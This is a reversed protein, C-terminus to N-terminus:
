PQKIVALTAGDRQIRHIIKAGPYSTVDLNYRSTSVVYDYHDARDVEYTSYVKIDERAYLEFIHSPGDVWVIADESASQNLYQAAERYSTGWYDLEYKRFAGNVGGMFRNYYIYQYPHLRIGDMIGPLLCLLIVAAQWKVDKIKEIAIGALMFVPPLIFFIQRFNDYLPARTVIFGTLPIVFWAFTWIALEQQERTGLVAVALGIFFLMWVPETLQIGFLIPLYSYPLETSIYELGDFLVQGNWPYRSMVQVSEVFHGVPNPWLYPWTLYMTIVAIITYISLPLIAQRGHKRLAYYVIFLAAFPGLIRISATLGLLIAPFLITIFTHFAAPFYRRISFLLLFSLLLFVLSRGWLFFVFYRQIYIESDVGQINSAVLSILNTGGAKASQVLNTIFLHFLDTFLFLGLASALWLASLVLLTWKPCPGLEDLQIPKLSDFLRLGLHLSLLFFSLFPIDKPSIFAHGILVPQTAFLLTSFLAASLTLWRKALEHFAWIGALFTIFYLYHRSDSETFIFQLPRAALTVLMVYAPGYNDYTNGFIAVSGQAPWTIYASLATDAYKYFKLEDWSEGYHPTIIAGMLAIVLFSIYPSIHKMHSQVLCAHIEVHRSVM